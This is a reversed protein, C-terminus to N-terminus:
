CIAARDPSPPPWNYVDFQCYPKFGLNECFSQGDASVAMVMAKAGSAAADEMAHRVMAACFGKHRHENITAVWYLGAVDDRRFTMARSIPEGNLYGLYYRSRSDGGANEPAFINAERDQRCLTGWTHLSADDQIHRVTFGGPSEIKPLDALNKAMGIWTECIGFGSAHLYDGLAPPYSTPGVVWSVSADWSKFYGLIELVRDQVGESTFRACLIRSLTPCGSYVWTVDSGHFVIGDESRGLATSSDVLSAEIAEIVASPSFSGIAEPM